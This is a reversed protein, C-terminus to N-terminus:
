SEIFDNVDSLVSDILEKKLVVSELSRPKKEKSTNWYGSNNEYITIKDEDSNEISLIESVYEKGM